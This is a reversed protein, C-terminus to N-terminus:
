ATAATDSTASKLARRRSADRLSARSDQWAAVARASMPRAFLYGQVVACGHHEVFAFQRTTEVGEAVCTQGLANAMAFVSALLAESRDDSGILSILSRDIKLEDFPLRVLQALNSFGSGFDDMALRVGAASLAQLRDRTAVLDQMATSETIEVSLLSPPLGAATIAEIVREPFGPRCFQIPSANVSVPIRRGSAMWAAAQAVAKQLVIDGIREILGCSEAIPVFVAPSIVGGDRRRLRVLAEVGVLSYDAVSVKPQYELYLRDTELASRLEAEVELRARAEDRLDADFVVHSRTEDRKAAYMALDAFSVLEMPDRTDAPTRVVGISVGIRVQTGQICFPQAIADQLLGAIRGVEDLDTVGPVLAVFEDGAFRHFSVDAVPENCIAGTPTMCTALTEVTKGFAVRLMRDSCRRLLEDGAEHGLTDNVRKFGDLDIFFLSGEFPRGGPRKDPEGLTHRLIHNLAARNPLQTVADSYALVNMRLINSNFRDVMKRFADALGGVECACNVDVPIDEGGAALAETSRRLAEISGTLRGAIMYTAWAPVLATMLVLASRTLLSSSEMDIASGILLVTAAALASFGAILIAFRIRISNIGKGYM